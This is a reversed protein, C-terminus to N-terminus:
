SDIIYNDTHSLLWTVKNGSINYAQDYLFNVETNLVKSSIDKGKAFHFMGIRNVSLGKQRGDISYSKKGRAEFNAM